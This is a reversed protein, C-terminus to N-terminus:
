DDIMVRNLKTDRSEALSRALGESIDKLKAIGVM